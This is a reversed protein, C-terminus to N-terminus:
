SDIESTALVHRCPGQSEGSSTTFKLQLIHRRGLTRLQLNMSYIRRGIQAASSRPYVGIVSSKLRDRRERAPLVPAQLPTKIRTCRRKDAATKKPEKIEFEKASKQSLVSPPLTISSDLCTSGRRTAHNAGNVIARERTAKIPTRSTAIRTTC